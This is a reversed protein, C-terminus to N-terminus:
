PARTLTAGERLSMEIAINQAASGRNYDPLVWTEPAAQVRVAGANELASEVAASLLREKFTITIGASWTDTAPAYSGSLGLTNVASSGDKLCSTCAVCLLLPALTFLIPTFFGRKEKEGKRGHTGLEECVVRWIGLAAASLWRLGDVVACAVVYLVALPFLLGTLLQIKM